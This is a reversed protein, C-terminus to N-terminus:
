SLGFAIAGRILAAYAVFTLQKFSLANAKKGPFCMFIAYSVYIAAFRGVVIVVLMILMFKWCIYYLTFEKGAIIGINIFVIAEAMFGITSFIVSCVHKGQPSLNYWAYHSLMLSTVILSVISSYGLEESLYYSMAAFSLFLSSEAVPSHTVFRFNKIVLTCALGFVVGIILSM